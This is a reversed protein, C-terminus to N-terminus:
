IVFSLMAIYTYSVGLIGRGERSEFGRVGSGTTTAIVMAGLRTSTTRSKVARATYSMITPNAGSCHSWIQKSVDGSIIVFKGFITGM